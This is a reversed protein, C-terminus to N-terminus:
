ARKGRSRRRARKRSKTGPKSSKTRTLPFLTAAETSAIGDSDRDYVTVVLRQIEGLRKTVSSTRRLSQRAHKRMSRLDFDMQEAVVVGKPNFYSLVATPKTMESSAARIAGYSRRWDFQQFAM